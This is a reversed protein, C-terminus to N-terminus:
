ALSVQRSHSPSVVPYSSNSPVSSHGPVLYSSVHLPLSSVDQQAM